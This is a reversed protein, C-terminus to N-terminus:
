HTADGTVRVYDTGNYIVIATKGAAVDIGTGGSVKINVAASDSGANRVIYMRYAAPAIISKTSPSATVILLNCLAEARTLTWDAAGTMAKTAVDLGFGKVKGLITLNTISYNERDAAIVPSAFVALLCLLIFISCIVKKM